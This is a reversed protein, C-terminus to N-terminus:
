SIRTLKRLIKNTYKRFLYPIFMINGPAPILSIEGDTRNLQNKNINKQIAEIKHRYPKSFHIAVLEKTIRIVPSAMVIQKNNFYYVIGSASAILSWLTQEAWSHGYNASLLSHNLINEVVAIKFLSVPFYYFGANIRPLIKNSFVFIEKDSYTYANDADMMFVPSEGPPPFSFSRFFIIDSDIYYFPKPEYLMVDYLKLGFVNQKRFLGSQPYRHLLPEILKDRDSKYVIVANPIKGTISQGLEKTISGDEFIELVTEQECNDICSKLCSISFDLNNKGLLTRLVIM